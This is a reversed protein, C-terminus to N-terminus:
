GVEVLYVPYGSHIFKEAIGALLGADTTSDSICTVSIENFKDNINKTVASVNPIRKTVEDTITKLKQDSVTNILLRLDGSNRTIALCVKTKLNNAIKPDRTFDKGEVLNDKKLISVLTQMLRKDVTTKTSVLKSIEKVGSAVAGLAAGVVAGMGALNIAKMFKSTKQPDNQGTPVTDKRFFGVLNGLTGGIAAGKAMDALLNYQKQKFQIMTKIHIDKM